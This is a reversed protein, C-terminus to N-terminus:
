KKIDLIKIKSHYHMNSGLPLTSYQNVWVKISINKEGLADISDILLEGDELDSLNYIKYDKKDTKIAIRIDSYSILYEGCDDSTVSDKDNEIVIKYDVKETLNNKVTITNANSSLGVSDTVPTVKKISILDKKNDHYIVDLKLSSTDVVNDYSFKNYIYITSVVALLLILSIYVFNKIMEKKRINKYYM